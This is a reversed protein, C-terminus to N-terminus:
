WTILYRVITDDVNDPNYFGNSRSYSKGAELNVEKDYQPEIFIMGRDTTDFGIISHGTEPYIIYVAACRLGQKEANNNLQTTYDTCIYSDKNYPIDNSKDGALFETMEQYTPNHMNYGSVAEKLGNQYGEQYGKNYGIKEGENQGQVYNFNQEDVKAQYQSYNYGIYGAGACLICIGIFVAFIALARHGTEM